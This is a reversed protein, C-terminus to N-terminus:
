MCVRSNQYTPWRRRSLFGPRPLPTLQEIRYRSLQPTRKDGVLSHSSQALGGILQPHTTLSSQLYIQFTALFTGCLEKGVREAM